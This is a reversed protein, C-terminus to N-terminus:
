SSVREGSAQYAKTHSHGSYIITVDDMRCDGGLVFAFSESGTMVAERFSKGSGHTSHMTWREGANMTARHFKVDRKFEITVYITRM